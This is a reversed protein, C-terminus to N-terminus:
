VTYQFDVSIIKVPAHMYQVEHIVANNVMDLKSKM